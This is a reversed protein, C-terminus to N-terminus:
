VGLPGGLVSANNSVEYKEEAPKDFLRRAQKDTGRVNGVSARRDPRKDTKWVNGVIARRDPDM